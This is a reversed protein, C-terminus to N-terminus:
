LRISESGGLNKAYSQRLSIILVHVTIGNSQGGRGIDNPSRLGHSVCMYRLHITTLWTLQSTSFLPLLRIPVLTRM